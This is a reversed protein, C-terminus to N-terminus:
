AHTRAEQRGYVWGMRQRARRVCRRCIHDPDVRRWPPILSMDLSDFGCFTSTFTQGYDLPVIQVIHARWKARFPGVWAWALREAM